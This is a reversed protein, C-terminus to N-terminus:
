PAKEGTLLPGQPTTDLIQKWARTAADVTISLAAATEGIRDGGKISVKGVEALLQEWTGIMPKGKRQWISLSLLNVAGMCADGGVDFEVCLASFACPGDKEVAARIRGALAVREQDAVKIGAGFEAAKAAKEADTQRPARTAMDNLPEAPREYSRVIGEAIQRNQNSQWDEVPNTISVSPASITLLSSVDSDYKGVLDPRNAQMAKHDHAIQARTRRKRGRPEPKQEAAEGGLPAGDPPGQELLAEFSLLRNEVDESVSGVHDAWDKLDQAKQSANRVWAALADVEARRTEIAYEGATLRSWFESLKV